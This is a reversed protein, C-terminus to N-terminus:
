RSLATPEQHRRRHGPHNRHDGPRRPLVGAPLQRADAEHDPDYEEALLGVDNRLALLREFLARAEEVADSCPWTTPWGSRACSSCARARRASRRQSEAPHYRRVFGDVTLERQIAEVTRVVREDSPPLFGVIPVLLLSADLRTPAM